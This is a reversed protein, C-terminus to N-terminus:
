SIKSVFAEIQEPKEVSECAISKDIRRALGTLVKGAGIEVMETVGQEKMWLVSERWRVTGTIQDVLLRRIDSPELTSQATVNPVVPVYPPRIDTDALATAMEQAAPAMLTCHFPASVPLEVAKRAGLKRFM